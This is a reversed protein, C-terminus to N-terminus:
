FQYSFTAGFLTATAQYSGNFHEISTTTTRDAMIIYLFFADVTISGAKYGVGFNLGDRDVDPLMPELYDDQVPSPDYYYGGRLTYTENLKYEAGFRLQTVDKYNKPSDVSQIAATETEFTIPLKDYSSWGFMMVDFEVGLKENVEYGLGLTLISPMTIETSGKVEPFLSALEGRVYPNNAIGPNNMNFTVVGDGDSFDVKVTSRYAVGLSIKDKRYQLGFNYGMGTGDAELGFIGDISRPSYNVAKKITATGYVYNFGAAVSFNENIKYVGVPNFYFTMLDAKTVMYRGSWDEGWDVGLGFPTFIGFGFGFKKSLKKYFYFDTPFFVQNKAESVGYYPTPGTFKATPLIFTTGLSIHTGELHALGAPNYFICTVDDGRAAFASALASARAGHEYINFGGAFSSGYSLLIILIIISINKSCRVM